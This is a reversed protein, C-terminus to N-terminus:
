GSAQLLNKKITRNHMLYEFCIGGHWFIPFSVNLGNNNITLPFKLINILILRDQCINKKVNYFAKHFWTRIFVCILLGGFFRSLAQLFSNMAMQSM